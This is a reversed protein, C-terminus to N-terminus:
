QRPHVRINGSVTTVEIPSGGSNLRGRVRRKTQEGVPEFSLSDVDITGNTCNLMLSASADAPLALDIAGNTARVAVPEGSFAGIDVKVDGNVSRVDLPGRVNKAVIEGNASTAVVAGDVDNISIAGNAARLRLRAGRPLTVRYNVEVEVGIVLGGLGETQVVIKEPTVDERIAIRPVLEQAAADNIARGVREAQVEVASGTGGQVEISGSAGVIQVEGGPALSYSRVWQDSARGRLPGEPGPHCASLLPLVLLVLAFYGACSASRPVPHAM